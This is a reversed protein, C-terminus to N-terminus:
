MGYRRSMHIVLDKVEKDGKTEEDSRERKKPEQTIKTIKPKKSLPPKETCDTTSDRDAGKFEDIATTIGTILKTASASTIHRMVNFATEVDTMKKSMANDIIGLARAHNAAVRLGQYHSGTADSLIRLIM